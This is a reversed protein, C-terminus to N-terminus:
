MVSLRARIRPELSLFFDAKDDVYCTTEHNRYTEAEGQKSRFETTHRKTKAQNDDAIRRKTASISICSEEPAINGAHWAEGCVM